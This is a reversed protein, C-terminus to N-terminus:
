GAGEAPDRLSRLLVRSVDVVQVEDAAKGQQKRVATGDTLM